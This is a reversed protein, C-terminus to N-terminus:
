PKAEVNFLRGGSNGTNANVSWRNEAKHLALLARKRNTINIVGSANATASVFTANNNNLITGDVYINNRVGQLATNNYVANMATITLDSGIVYSEMEPCVVDTTVTTTITGGLPTTTDRRLEVHTAVEDVYNKGIGLYSKGSAPSGSNWLATLLSERNGSFELNESVSASTFQPLLIANNYYKVYSWVADSNDGATASTDGFAISNTSATTSLKGTGDIILRGNLYLYYDSGKGSLTFVNESSKFDGQYIFQTTVADDVSLFYEHIRVAIVKTGDQVGISVPAVVNILNQDSSVRLKASVTWGNTNSLGASTKTYNGTQASTLGDANQYLKGGSVSYGNAETGTGGFAWGLTSPLASFSTISSGSWTPVAFSLAGGLTAHGAERFAPDFTLTLGTLPTGVSAGDVFLRIYDSGDGVSRISFGVDHDGTAISAAGTVTRKTGGSDWVDVQAFGSANISVLIRDHDIGYQFDKLPQSVTPATVRILSTFQKGDWFNKLPQWLYDTLDIPSTAGSFVLKQDFRGGSQLFSVAAPALV